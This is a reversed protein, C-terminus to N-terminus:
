RTLQPYFIDKEYMILDHVSEVTKRITELLSHERALNSFCHKENAFEHFYRIVNKCGDPNLYCGNNNIVFDEKKIINRNLLSITFRDCVPRFPEMIDIALNYRGNKPKHYFGLFPEYAHGQVLGNILNYVLSYIFSILANAENGPPRRTRKKIKFESSIYHDVEKWYKRAALGEFGLLRECNQAGNIKDTMEILDNETGSIKEKRRRRYRELVNIQNRIKAQITKKAIRYCKDPNSFANIQKKRLNYYKELPPTLSCKYHGKLSYFAIPL